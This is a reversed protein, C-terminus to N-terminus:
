LSNFAEDAVADTNIDSNIVIESKKLYALYEINGDSGKIGSFTLGCVSLGCMNFYETIEKLVAKHVRKDTVIGKKNLANKGAEFQPKILVAFICGYASCDSLANMIHKLSIFSVDVSFFDVAESFHDSTLERANTGECNVVRSNNQLKKDLQGHGVDVAYVKEAGKELLVETFGGASAGIDACVMGTVNIDFAEFAKELKLAGRGVYKLDSITVTVTDGESVAESPKSVAASNIYVGGSKILNKARERSKAYGKEVLYADIRKSM